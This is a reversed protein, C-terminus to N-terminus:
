HVILIRGAYVTKDTQLRIIYKGQPLYTADIAVQSTGGEINKDFLVSGTIDTIKLESM